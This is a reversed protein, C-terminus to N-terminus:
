QKERRATMASINKGGFDNFWLVAVINGLKYEAHNMIRFSFFIFLHKVVEM